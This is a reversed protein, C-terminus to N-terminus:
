KCFLFVFIMELKKLLIIAGVLQQISCTQLNTRGGKTNLTFSMKNSSSTSNLALGINRYIPLTCYIDEFIAQEDVVCSQHKNFFAM